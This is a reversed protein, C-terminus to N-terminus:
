QAVSGGFTTDNKNPGQMLLAIIIEEIRPLQIAQHFALAQAERTLAM